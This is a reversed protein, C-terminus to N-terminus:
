PRSAFYSALAHTAEDVTSVPYLGERPARHGFGRTPICDILALHHVFDDGYIDCLVLPTEGPMAGVDKRSAVDFVEFATGTGGPFAVFADGYALLARQRDHLHVYDEYTDAFETRPFKAQNLTVAHVTGGAEKAGRSIEDMLGPGGGTAVRYGAQALAAGLLRAEERYRVEREGKPSSGCFVVVTRKKGILM